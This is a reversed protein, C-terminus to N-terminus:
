PEEGELLLESKLFFAGEDVVQQGAELGDLIAVYEPTVLGTTVSIKRYAGPKLEVFVFKDQEHRMIAGAPVALVRQAAGLPVSVWAFMGPKFRHEANPLDAVLPISRSDASMSVGVFQVRAKVEHDPVAPSLVTLEKVDSGSFAAWEREYLQASVWLMDTNAVTFLPQSAIFQSGEAVLRDEVVGDFPARLIMKCITGNSGDDATEAIEAFPGLLLSLKQKNVALVRQAHELAARARAQHQLSDFRSQECVGEFGATSVERTSAREQVLRDSIAGRESMAQTDKSVRDALMLKSYASLIRDRNDGLVKDKFHSEVYSVQPRENLLVLLSELNDCIDSAWQSEKRALQVDAESKIVGDRALGVEVSTLNALVDGHHIPQGPGALVKMVVGAVPIKLELRRATNYEIKAPVRRSERLERMAVASVHLHAAALKAPTLEIVPEDRAIAQKTDPAGLKESQLVSRAELYWTAGLAAAVLLGLCLLVTGLRSRIAQRSPFGWSSILSLM